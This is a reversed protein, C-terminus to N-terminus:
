LKIEAVEEKGNGIVEVKNVKVIGQLFIADNLTQEFIM